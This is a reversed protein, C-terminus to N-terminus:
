WCLGFGGDRDPHDILVGLGDIDVHRRTPVDSRGAPEESTRKERTALRILNDGISSRCQRIHDTLQHRGRKAVRRPVRVITNLAVVTAEFRPQSRHAPQLGVPGGAHDDATLANM